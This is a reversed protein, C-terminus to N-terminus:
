PLPMQWVETDSARVTATFLRGDSLFSLTLCRQTGPAADLSRLQHANTSDWLRFTKDAGASALWRGASDFAASEVVGTHGEFTNGRKPQNVDSIDWSRITGDQMGGVLNRGDPSIALSHVGNSDSVITVLKKAQWDWVGAVSRKSEKGLLAVLNRKPDEAFGTWTAQVALKAIAEVKGTSVNWVRVSKDTSSSVLFRRDSSFASCLATGMGGDKLERANKTAVDWVWLSREGAASLLKSDPSFQISSVPKAPGTLSGIMTGDKLSRLQVGGENGALAILLGDPSIAALRVTGASLAVLKEMPLKRTFDHITSTRGPGTSAGGVPTELDPPKRNGNAPEIANVPVKAVLFDGISEGLQYPKQVRAQDIGYKKMAGTVYDRLGDFTIFQNGPSAAKGKLGEILFYSFVGHRLSDDEYSVDGPATSYLIRLGESERLDDFPRSGVAKAEPDNRCADVFAMRRKARTDLLLKQVESLSLGQSSLNTVTTGFTALYNENDARFGHGSFCFIFTGEGADIAKTLEAFRTRIAGATAEGDTLLSVDYGEQKLVKGIEFIDSVPYKLSALGTLSRDYNNIGVLFAINTHKNSSEAEQALDLPVIRKTAAGGTQGALPRGANAASSQPWGPTSGILLAGLLSYLAVKQISM